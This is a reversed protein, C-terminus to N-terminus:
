EMLVLASYFARLPLSIKRRKVPMPPAYCAAGHVPKGAAQRSRSAACGKGRERARAPVWCGLARTTVM